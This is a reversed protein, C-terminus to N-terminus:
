WFWAPRERPIAGMALLWPIAGMCYLLVPGRFRRVPGEIILLGVVAGGIVKVFTEPAELTGRAVSVVALLMLGILAVNRVDGRTSVVYLLLGVQLPAFAYSRWWNNTGQVALAAALSDAIFSVFFAASLLWADASRARGLLALVACALLPLISGWYSLYTLVDWFMLFM